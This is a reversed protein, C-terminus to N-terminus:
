ALFRYNGMQCLACDKKAAAAGVIEFSNDWVDMMLLGPNLQGQGTIIKIAETASISAMLTVIPGLVGATDITPGGTPPEPGLLCQLCPTAERGIRAAAGPPIITAGMGYTAMVGTYIWPLGLKVAVDNILYRTEFNDAGDLILHVDSALDLANDPAFKTIIPELTIESNISQLRQAAAVVKARKQAADQEDFLIQRHLNGREVTDFDVLRLFGVGARALLMALASGTAGTGVILVRANLLKHQGQQGLGAFRMQRHYRSLDKVRTM